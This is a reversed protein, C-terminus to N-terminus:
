VNAPLMIKDNFDVADYKEAYNDVLKDRGTLRYHRDDGPLFLEQSIAVEFPVYMHTDPVLHVRMGFIFTDPKVITSKIFKVGIAQCIESALAHAFSESMLVRNPMTGYNDAFIKVHKALNKVARPIGNPTSMSWPCHAETISHTTTKKLGFM